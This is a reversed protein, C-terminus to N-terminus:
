KAPKKAPSEAIEDVEAEEAVEESCCVNACDSSCVFHVKKGCRMRCDRHLSAACQACEERDKAIATNCSTCVEEPEEVVPVKKKKEGSEESKM